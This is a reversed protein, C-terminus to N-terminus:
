LSRFGKRFPPRLMRVDPIGFEPNVCRPYVLERETRMPEVKYAMFGTYRVTILRHAYIIGVNRFQCM